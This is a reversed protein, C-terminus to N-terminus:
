EEKTFIKRFTSNPFSNEEITTKTKCNTNPKTQRHESNNSKPEKNRCKLIGLWISLTLEQLHKKPCYKKVECLKQRKPYTISVLEIFHLDLLLVFLGQFGKLAKKKQILALNHNKDEIGLM